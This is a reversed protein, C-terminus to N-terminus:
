QVLPKCTARAEMHNGELRLECDGDTCTIRYNTDDPRIPDTEERALLDNLQQITGNYTGTTLEHTLDYEINTVHSKLVDAIM